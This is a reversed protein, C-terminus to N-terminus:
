FLSEPASMKFYRVILLILFHCPERITLRGKKDRRSVRKDCRGGWVRALFELYRLFLFGLLAFFSVLAFLFVSSLSLLHTDEELTSFHPSMRRLGLSLPEQSRCQVYAGQHSPLITMDLALEKRM